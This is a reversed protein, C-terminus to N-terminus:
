YTNFQFSYVPSYLALKDMVLDHNEYLFSHFQNLFSPLINLRINVGDNEEDNDWVFLDESFANYYVGAHKGNEPNKTADKYAVSLRTKGTANFAFILIISENLEKIQNAIVALSM